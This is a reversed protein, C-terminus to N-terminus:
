GHHNRENLAVEVEQDMRMWENDLWETFSEINDSPIQSRSVRRMVFRIPAMKTSIAQLIGGFTDLGEFGIHWALVVDAMPNGRMMAGAGAPRPPLLHQMASLRQGRSPDISSIKELARTRKADNARTGEPFIIGVTSADMDSVLKELADLEPQADNANRDLFHNPLRQGVVDLCPDALLERKLVYRPNMQALTTVVYASVLSDALSAHRAFMLVPGPSLSEINVAEVRIGCTKGLAGLLRAAWWRQLAYHRSLNKRQGTLWLLLAGLVGATELWAWCVAFSLLRALPLRFQRRCLDIAVVTVLWVPILVTLIIAGLILAPISVLRRKM